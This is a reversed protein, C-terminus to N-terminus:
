ELAGEFDTSPRVGPGAARVRHAVDWCECTVGPDCPLFGHDCEFDALLPASYVEDSPGDYMEMDIM